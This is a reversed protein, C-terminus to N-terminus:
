LTKLLYEVKVINELLEFSVDQLGHSGCTRLAALWVNRWTAKASIGEVSTESFEIHCSALFKLCNMVNSIIEQRLFISHKM